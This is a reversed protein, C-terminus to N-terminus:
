LKVIGDLQFLGEPSKFGSNIVKEPIVQVNVIKVCRGNDLALSISDVVKFIRNAIPYHLLSCDSKM